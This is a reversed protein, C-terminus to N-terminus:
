NVMFEVYDSNDQSFNQDFKATSIRPFYIVGVPIDLQRQKCKSHYRRLFKITKYGIVLILLSIGIFVLLIEIKTSSANESAPHAM